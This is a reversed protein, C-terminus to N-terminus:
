APPEIVHWRAIGCALRSLSQKAIHEHVALLGIVIGLIATAPNWDTLEGVLWVFVFRSTGLAIASLVNAILFSRFPASALLSGVGGAATEAPADTSM